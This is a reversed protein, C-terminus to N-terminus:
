ETECQGLLAILERTVDAHLEVWVPNTFGTEGREFQILKFTEPYYQWLGEPYHEIFLLRNADLQHKAVVANAITECENTVSTGEGRYTAVVLSQAPAVMLHCASIHGTASRFEFHYAEM